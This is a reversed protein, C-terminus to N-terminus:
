AYIAIPLVHIAPGDVHWRAKPMNFGQVESLHDFHSFVGALLAEPLLSMATKRLLNISEEAPVSRIVKGLVTFHGEVLNAMTPDALYEVDLTVVAAFGSELRGSVIDVTSGSLLDERLSRFQQELRENEGSPPKGQHKGKPKPVPATTFVSQMRIAALMNDILQVIPNRSLTSTFEMIQGPRFGESISSASILGRDRLLQRLKFLLSGPTHVREESLERESTSGTSTTRKASLDIKLLTALAQSVGFTAGADRAISDAAGETSTVRTVQSLGDQLMALVDFVIRQNLYVPIIPPSVDAM